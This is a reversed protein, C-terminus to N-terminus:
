SPLGAKSRTLLRAFINLILVLSVLVLAVGWSQQLALKTPADRLIYIQMPLSAIPDKPNTNWLQSNCGVMLLPATEGAIRAVALLIGTVIGSRASPLVVAWVTRAHTAGLALSGERLAQPVLRVLEETTRMVVPIMMVGLAFGGAYGQFASGPAFHQLHPKLAIVLTYAFIGLVISPVGNLLDTGYRIWFGLRNNGFEALYIGGLVGLPVGLTSAMLIFEATGAIAHLMGGADPDSANPLRFFQPNISSIGARIVYFFLTALAACGIFACLSCMALGIGNAIRRWPLFYKTGPVLRNFVVLILLALGIAEAGGFLGMIGRLRLDSFAQFLFLAALLAIGVYRLGAHTWERAKSATRSTSGGSKMATLWVLGRALGNVIMTVLFLTFAIQTLASLQLDSNPSPYQDALISTMTYGPRFLSFAGPTGSQPFNIKSGIVLTVAMTEGIARGLGLMVAGIIGSGAYKLVVGKITEWRTAGMGYAAERQSSPVTRLIDRSVAAIFPLVMLALILGAALFDMGSGSDPARAFLPIQSFNRSLWSELGAEQGQANYMQLHPVLYLLAWYGYVISPVAALMEILFSIPTSLRRPAIESLFIAAGIGIPVALLLALISTVLTGYLFPAARYIDGIPKDEDPAVPDWYITGVKSHVGGPAYFSLHNHVFSLHSASYLTAAIGAILLVSSLAFVLTLRRFIWDVYRARSGSRHAAGTSASLNNPLSQAM